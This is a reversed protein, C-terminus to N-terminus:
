APCARVTVSARRKLHVYRFPCSVPLRITISKDMVKAEFGGCCRTQAQFSAQSDILMSMHTVPKLNENRLIEVELDAFGSLSEPHGFACPYPLGDFVAQPACASLPYLRGIGQCAKSGQLRRGAIDFLHSASISVPRAHLDENVRVDWHVHGAALMGVPRWRPRKEIAYAVASTSPHVLM